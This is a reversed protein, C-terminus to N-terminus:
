NLISVWEAAFKHPLPPLISQTRVQTTRRARQSPRADALPPGLARLRHCGMFWSWSSALSVCWSDLAITADFGFENPPDVTFCGALSVVKRDLTEDAADLQVKPLQSRM